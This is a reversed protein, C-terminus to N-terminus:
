ILLWPRTHGWSHNFSAQFEQPFYQWKSNMCYKKGPRFDGQGTEVVQDQQWIHVWEFSGLHEKTVVPKEECNVHPNQWHMIDKHLVSLPLLSMLYFILLQTAHVERWQVQYFVQLSSRVWFSMGKEPFSSAHSPQVGEDQWLWQFAIHKHKETCKAVTGSSKLRSLSM